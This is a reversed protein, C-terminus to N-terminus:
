IQIRYLSKCLSVYRLDLTEDMDYLWFELLNPRNSKLHDIEFHYENLYQKFDIIM